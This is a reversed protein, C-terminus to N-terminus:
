FNHSIPDQREIHENNQSFLSTNLIQIKAQVGTSTSHPKRHNPRYLKMKKHRVYDSM